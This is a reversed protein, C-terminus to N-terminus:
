CLNDLIAPWTSSLLLPLCLSFCSDCFSYRRLRDIPFVAFYDSSSFFFFYLLLLLLNRRHKHRTKKNHKKNWFILSKSNSCQSSYTPSLTWNTRPTHCNWILESLPFQHALELEYSLLQDVARNSYYRIQQGTRLPLFQALRWNMRAPAQISLWGKLMQWTTLVLWLFSSECLDLKKHVSFFVSDSIVCVSLCFLVIFFVVCLHSRHM